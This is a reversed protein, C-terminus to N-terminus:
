KLGSNLKRIPSIKVLDTSAPVSFPPSVLSSWNLFRTSSTPLSVILYDNSVALSFM